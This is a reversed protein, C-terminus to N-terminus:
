EITGCRDSSCMWCVSWFMLPERESFGDSIPVESRASGSLDHPRHLAPDSEHTIGRVDPEVLDVIVSQASHADSVVDSVSIRSGREYIM